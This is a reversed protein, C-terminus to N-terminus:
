VVGGMSFISTRNLRSRSASPSASTLYPGRSRSEGPSISIRLGDEGSLPVRSGKHKKAKRDGFSKSSKGSKSKGSKSGGMPQFGGIQKGQPTTNNSGVGIIQIDLGLDEISERSRSNNNSNNRSIHRSGGRSDESSSSSSSSSEQDSESNSDSLVEHLDLTGRHPAVVEDEFAAASASSSGVDRTRSATMKRASLLYVGTLTLIIGVPFMIAQTVSFNAFEGFYAAGGM